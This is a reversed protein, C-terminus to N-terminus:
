VWGQPVQEQTVEGDMMAYRLFELVNADEDMLGPIAYDCLGGSVDLAEPDSMPIFSGFPAMSDNYAPQNSTASAPIQTTALTPQANNVHPRDYSTNM